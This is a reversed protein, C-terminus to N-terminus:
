EITTTGHVVLHFAELPNAPKGLDILLNGGVIMGTKNYKLGVSVKNSGSGRITLNGDIKVPLTTSLGDFYTTSTGSGNNFTVNGKVHADLLQNTLVTGDAFTVPVNGSIVSRAL